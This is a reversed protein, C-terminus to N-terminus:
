KNLYKEIVNEAAKDIEIKIEEYLELIDEAEKTLTSGKSGTYRDLLKFGLMKEAEKIIRWAKSYAMNMDKTAQNMSGTERIGNLLYVIGPGFSGPRSEDEYTSIIIKTSVSLNKM